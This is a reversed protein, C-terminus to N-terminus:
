LSRSGPLHAFTAPQPSAASARASMEWAISRAFAAFYRKSCAANSRCDGVHPHISSGNGARGVSGAPHAVGRGEQLVGAQGELRRHRQRGGRLKAGLEILEDVHAGGDLDGIVYTWKGPAPSPSRRRASACRSANWRSSPSISTASTLGCACRKWYFRAPAYTPTGGDRCSVCVFVTVGPRCGDELEQRQVRRTLWLRALSM